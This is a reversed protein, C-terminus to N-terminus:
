QIEFDASLKVSIDTMFGNISKVLRYRGPDLKQPFVVKEVYSESPRAQMAITVVSRDDLVLTWGEPEERYIAYGYGFYLNTPGANYLTLETPDSGVAPPQEPMQYTFDLQRKDNNRNDVIYEKLLEVRNGEKDRSTIQFRVSRGEPVKSFGIGVDTGAQRIPSPTSTLINFGNEGEFWKGTRPGYEKASALARDQAQISSVKLTNPDGVTDALHVVTPDIAQSSTNELDSSTKNGCASLIFGFIIILLIRQM